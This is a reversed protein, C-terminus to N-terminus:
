RILRIETNLSLGVWVRDATLVPLELRQGLAICARDGLSLGTSKTLLRLQAIALADTPTVAVLELNQGLLGQTELDQVLVQPDDGRDAVKSLVEIWNVVSMAAGQLLAMEVVSSGPENHLYALFASADLVFSSV